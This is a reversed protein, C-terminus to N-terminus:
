PHEPSEYDASASTCILIQARMLEIKLQVVVEFPLGHYFLFMFQQKMVGSKQSVIFVTPNKKCHVDM